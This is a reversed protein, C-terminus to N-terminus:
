KMLEKVILDNCFKGLLRLGSPSKIDLDSKKIFAKIQDANEPFIKLFQKENTFKFMTNDYRAWYQTSASLEMNPPLELNRIQGGGRVVRVSTPGNVQSTLGYASKSPMPTLRNKHQIFLSLKGSAVVEYLAQEMPVFVRNQLFITDVDEIRNIVFYSTNQEFLMEEDVTNYNLIAPNSIGSKM